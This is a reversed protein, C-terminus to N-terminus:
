QKRADWWEPKVAEGIAISNTQFMPMKQGEPNFPEKLTWMMGLPIAQNGAMGLIPSQLLHCKEIFYNGFLTAVLLVKHADPDLNLVTGNTLPEGRLLKERERSNVSM